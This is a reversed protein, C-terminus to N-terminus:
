NGSLADELVSECIPKATSLDLMGKSNEDVELGYKKWLANAAENIHINRQIESINQDTFYLVAVATMIKGLDVKYPDGNTEFSKRIELSESNYGRQSMIECLNKVTDGSFKVREIANSGGAISLFKAQISQTDLLDKNDGRPQYDNTRYDEHAVSEGDDKRTILLDRHGVLGLKGKEFVTGNGEAYVVFSINSVANQGYIQRVTDKTQEPPESTNMGLMLTEGFGSKNKLKLLEGSKLKELIERGTLKKESLMSQESQRSISVDEQKVVLETVVETM